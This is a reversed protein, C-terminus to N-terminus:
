RFPLTLIKKVSKTAVIVATIGGLLTGVVLGAIGGVALKGKGGGTSRAAAHAPKPQPNRPREGDTVEKPRDEVRRGAARARTKSDDGMMSGKARAYVQTFEAGLFLIQSSWYVWILLIVLSGAAGFSSGPAAKGLYLGLGFKIGTANM